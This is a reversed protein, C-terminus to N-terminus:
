KTYLDFIENLRKACVPCFPAYDRMMCHMVPRYIGKSLYGGGEYVGLKGNEGPYVYKDHPTPIKTGEPLMSKWKRDFDVLTTINPEPPECKLAHMDSYSVGEDEYEDALGGISHGLEHPLVAYAMKNLSSMAYFNYIAGGGYTDTNCMIIIHDCPTHGIADHVKFLHMTMLYRDIDFTNFSSGVLSNVQIGKGPNTIGTAEGMLPIGWINFDSKRSAFPEQQLTYQCFKQLDAMMKLSDAPGYGEPIIVIDNKKHIDGSYHLKIPTVPFKVCSRRVLDEKAKVPDFHYVYQTVFHQLTDRKQFRIEVPAKPWPLRVVEEFEAVQDKGKDTDRYERFLSNYCRSYLETGKKPDVMMVRYEGNDFPDLLQTLSGAWPGLQEFDVYQITDHQRNGVRHYDIRLTADTFYKSFKVNQAEASLGAILMAAVLFLSAFKKM